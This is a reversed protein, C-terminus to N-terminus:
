GSTEDLIQALRTLGLDVEQENMHCCGLVLGNLGDAKVAFGSLPQLGLGAGKARLCIEADNLGPRLHFVIQMGAGQDLAHGFEAFEAALRSLLHKRREAYIRRMRRLHRYFEGSDIFAALAQQPMVSARSGVRHLRDQLAPLLAEPAILYGIRLRNSFTKSFSGVYVTRNSGEFGAMAPIPRGAYRFESDYDDEIIWAKSKQAWDLFEVRRGPAMAGGLPFQHSPTLVVARLEADGQPVCAGSEDVWVSTRLLGQGEVIRRLPIYGPDELGIAHGKQAITRLCLDLADGAGATIIVQHPGVSLGRWDAVYSAISRRLDANGLASGGDLLAEPANRCIRAVCQGWRRHPFLRMDPEGGSFPLPSRSMDEFPPQARPQCAAAVEVEGMACVNYGAGQRGSIYGEAQMQEYATVVTSRAVGLEVALSRTAPLRYGEPLEGAVIQQRLAACIQEFLPTPQDRDLTFALASMSQEHRVSSNSM